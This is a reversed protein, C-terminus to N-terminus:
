KLGAANFLFGTNAVRSVHTEATPAKKNNGFASVTFACKPFHLGFNGTM